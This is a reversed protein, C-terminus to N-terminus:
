NQHTRQGGAPYLAAYTAATLTTECSRRYVLLAKGAAPYVRDDGDMSCPNLGPCMYKGYKPLVRPFLAQMIQKGNVSNCSCQSQGCVGGFAAFASARPGHADTTVM